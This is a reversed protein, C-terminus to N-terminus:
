SAMYGWAMSHRVYVTAFVANGSLIYSPSMGGFTDDIDAAASIGPETDCGFNRATFFILLHYLLNSLRVNDMTFHACISGWWKGWDPSSSHGSLYEGICSSYWLDDSLAPLVWVVFMFYLATVGIVVAGGKQSTSYNKLNGITM